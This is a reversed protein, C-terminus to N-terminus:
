DTIYTAYKHKSKAWMLIGFYMCWFTKFVADIAKSADVPIIEVTSYENGNALYSTHGKKETFMHSGHTQRPDCLVECPQIM